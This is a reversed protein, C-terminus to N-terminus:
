SLRIKLTCVILYYIKWKPPWQKQSKSTLDNLIFPTKMYTSYVKM